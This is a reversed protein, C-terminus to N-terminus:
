ASFRTICCCVPCHIPPSFELLSVLDTDAQAEKVACQAIIDAERKLQRLLMCLLDCAIGAPRLPLLSNQELSARGHPPVGPM